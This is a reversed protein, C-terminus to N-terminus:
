AILPSSFFISRGPNFWLAQYCALSPTGSCLTFSRWFLRALPAIIFGLTLVLYVALLWARKSTKLKKPSTQSSTQKPLIYKNQASTRSLRNVLWVLSIQWIALAFALQLNLYTVSQRYIETELTNILGRGLLLVVGFSTFCFIFILFCASLIVPKLLPWSVHRWITLRSAGLGAAAEELSPDLKAWHEGVLRPILSFNYFVHALLIAVLAELRQNQQGLSPLFGRFATAVVMTPLMFAVSVINQWAAKGWFDYKALIYSGPFALLLTLFVSLLALGLSFLTLHLYYNTTSIQQWLKPWIQPQLLIRLLIQLLPYLFFIGLFVFLVLRLFFIPWTRHTSKPSPPLRFPHSQLKTIASISLNHILQIGAGSLSALIVFFKHIMNKWNKPSSLNAYSM